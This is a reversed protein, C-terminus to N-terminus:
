DLYRWGTGSYFEDSAEPVVRQIQVEDGEIDAAGAAVPLTAAPKPLLDWQPADRCFDLLLIKGHIKWPSFQPFDHPFRPFKVTQSM